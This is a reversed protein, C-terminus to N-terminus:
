RFLKKFFNKIRTGFTQKEPAPQTTIVPKQEDALPTPINDIVPQEAKKIEQKQSIKPKTKTSNVVSTKVPKLTALYDNYKATGTKGNPYKKIHLADLRDAVEANNKRIRQYLNSADQVNLADLYNFVEQVESDSYIHKEQYKQLAQQSVKYEQEAIQDKLKAIQLKLEAIELQQSQQSSIKNELDAKQSRLASIQSDYKADIQSLKSQLQNGIGYSGYIGSIYNKETDREQELQSIRSSLTSIMSSSNGSLGSELKQLRYELASQQEQQKILVDPPLYNYDTAFATNTTVLIVFVFIGIKILNKM